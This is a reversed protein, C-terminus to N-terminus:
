QRVWVKTIVQETNGKIAELLEMQRMRVESALSSGNTKIVLTDDKVQIARVGDPFLRAVEKQILDLESQKDAIDLKAAKSQLIDDLSDM